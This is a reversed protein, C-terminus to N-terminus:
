EGTAEDQAEPGKIAALDQRVQRLQRALDEARRGLSEIDDQRSEAAEPTESGLSWVGRRRLGGGHQGRGRGGGFGRRMAGGCPGRGMGRGMRIPGTGDGGPM